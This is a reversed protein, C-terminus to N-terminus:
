TGLNSYNMIHVIKRKIFYSVVISLLLIIFLLSFGQLYHTKIITIDTLRPDLNTIKALLGSLYGGLSLSVFFVGMLTSVRKRDALVTVMSLGVPSLLLESISILLYAPIILLPSILQLGPTVWISFIICCYAMAISVIAIFFKTSVRIATEQKTYTSKHKSIFYGFVLMGLSEICVYYPAPFVLGYLKPQALRAIFLTLSLFMQFYFAWYIVSILCLLGIARTQLSQQPSERNAAHIVFSMSLILVGIFILTGVRADCLVLLCLLWLGILSAMPQTITEKLTLNINEQCDMIKYRVIGFYFVYAAFLIGICASGFTVSWGFHQQLYSPLTTGLIIGTTIGMYFITFGSEREPAQDPYVHGLLSSINPKLLGTGVAIGALSFKLFGDSQMFTLALYSAFLFFAGLLVSKKQGLWHDAIWGGLVPSLYTLGTFASVLTYVADDSWHFHLALYLALLSQIVYFGYREWMETAFFTKLAPPHQQLHALM